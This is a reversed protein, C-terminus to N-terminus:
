QTKGKKEAIRQIADKAQYLEPEIELAQKYKSYAQKLDNQDEYGLGESFLLVAKMDLTKGQSLTKSEDKTLQVALDVLLKKGLNKILTLIHKTKGTQEEAKIVSGTEVQVIRLDIRIKEGPMVMFSGFVLNKAGLMKGVQITSQESVIGSQSMKLEDLMDKMRRREVMKVSEIQSLETIMMEALGQSLSTYSDANMFSRNEFDLVALTIPNTYVVTV